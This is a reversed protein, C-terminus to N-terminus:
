ALATVILGVGALATMLGIWRILFVSSILNHSDSPTFERPWTRSVQQILPLANCAALAGIIVMLGGVLLQM